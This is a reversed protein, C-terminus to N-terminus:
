RKAHYRFASCEREKDPKESPAHEQLSCHGKMSLYALMSAYAWRKLEPDEISLLWARRKRIFFWLGGSLVLGFYVIARLSSELSIIDVIGMFAIIAVTFGVYMRVYHAIRDQYIISLIMARAWPDQNFNFKPTSSQM